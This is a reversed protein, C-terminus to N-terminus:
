QLAEGERLLRSMSTRGAGPGALAALVAAAQAVGDKVDAVRLPAGDIQGIM